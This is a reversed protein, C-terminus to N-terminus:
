GEVMRVPSWPDVEKGGRSTENHGGKESDCDALKDVSHPWSLVHEGSTNNFNVNPLDFWALVEHAFPAVLGNENATTSRLHDRCRLLVIHDNGAHAVRLSTSVSALLRFPEDRDSDASMKTTDWLGIGAIPTAIEAWAVSGMVVMSSPDALSRCWLIQFYRRVLEEVFACEFKALQSMAAPVPADLSHTQSVPGTAKLVPLVSALHAVSTYYSPSNTCVFRTKSRVYTNRHHLCGALYPVISM